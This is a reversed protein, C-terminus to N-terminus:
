RVPGVKLTQEESSTLERSTGFPKKPELYRVDGCGVCTAKFDFDLKHLELRGCKVCDLYIEPM